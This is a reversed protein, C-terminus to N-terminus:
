LTTKGAAKAKKWRERAAAAMKAKAAASVKRRGRRKAAGNRVIYITASKVGALKLLSHIHALEGAITAQQKQLRAERNQLAKVEAHMAKEAKRMANISQKLKADFNM